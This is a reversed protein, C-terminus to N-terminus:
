DKTLMNNMLSVVKPGEPFKKINLIDNITGRDVVECTDDQPLEALNTVHPKINALNPLMRVMQKVIM